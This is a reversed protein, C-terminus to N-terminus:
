LGLREKIRDPKYGIICDEEDIILAPFSTRDSFQRIHQRAAGREEAGVLDVYIFDFDVGEDELLQRTKRCWICTSLAYLLVQHKDHQGQVHGKMDPM